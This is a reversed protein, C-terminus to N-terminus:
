GDITAPPGSALASPVKLKEFQPMRALPIESVMGHDIAHM